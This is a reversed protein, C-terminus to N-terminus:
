ITPRRGLVAGMGTTAPDDWLREVREWSPPKKWAVRPRKNVVPVVQWGLKRYTEAAERLGFM